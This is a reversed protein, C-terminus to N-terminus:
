QIKLHPHTWEIKYGPQDKKAAFREDIWIDAVAALKDDLYILPILDRLWPYYGSERFLDKLKKSGPRALLRIREGGSRPRISISSSEWIAKSIGEGTVAKISLFGMENPLLVGESNWPTLLFPCSDKTKHLLFFKSDFARIQYSHWEVLGSNTHIMLQMQELVKQSPLRVENKSLWQRLVLRQTEDSLEAMSSYNLVGAREELLYNSAYGSLVQMAEACHAASRSTTKAFAPWRKQILPIVQQRLFNRDLSVDLNSPDDIWELGEQEAYNLITKKSIPLFPRGLLGDGFPSLEPMGSLGKVGAGRLLQLMFTEAQDDEHQATLVITSENAFTLLAEYRAHRAAQEPGEGKLDVANVNISYFEVALYNSVQECHDRWQQADQHLGHNIYVSQVIFNDTTKQLMACCHLLVHSDVGGSYAVILRNVHTTSAILQEVSKVLQNM